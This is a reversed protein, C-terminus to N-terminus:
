VDALGDGSFGLGLAGSFESDWAMRTDQKSTGHLAVILDRGLAM